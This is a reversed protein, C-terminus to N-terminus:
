GHVGWARWHSLLPPFILAIIVRGGQGSNLRLPSMCLRTVFTDVHLTHKVVRSSFANSTGDVLRRLGRNNLPHHPLPLGM